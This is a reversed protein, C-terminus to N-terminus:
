SHIELTLLYAPFSQGAVIFDGFAAEKLVTEVVAGGLTADTAIVARLAAAAAPWLEELRQATAAPGEPEHRVVVAVGLVVQDVCAWADFTVDPMGLVVAPPQWAGLVGYPLVPVDVGQGALESELQDALALRAAATIM